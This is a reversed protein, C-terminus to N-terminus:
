GMFTIRGRTKRPGSMHQMCQTVGNATSLVGADLCTARRSPTMLESVTYFRGLGKDQQLSCEAPISIWDPISTTKECKSDPDIHEKLDLEVSEFFPIYDHGTLGIESGAIKYLENDAISVLGQCLTHEM